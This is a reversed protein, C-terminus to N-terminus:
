LRATPVSRASPPLVVAASTGNSERPTTALTTWIGGEILINSDAGARPEVPGHTGDVVSANRVMCTNTGPKLRIETDPDVFLRNGSRLVLPADIYYPKERYPIRVSTHKDICTQIAKTWLEAKVGVTKLEGDKGPRRETWEAITVFESM